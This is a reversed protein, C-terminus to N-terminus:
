KVKKFLAGVVKSLAANYNVTYTQNTENYDTCEPMLNLLYQAIFGDSHKNTLKWDFEYTIDNLGFLKNIFEDSISKINTKLSIDSGAYLEGGKAYSDTVYISTKFGQNTGDFGGLYM